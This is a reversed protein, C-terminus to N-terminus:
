QSFIQKIKLSAAYFEKRAIDKHKVSLANVAEKASVNNKIIYDVLMAEASLVTESEAKHETESKTELNIVLTYEGKEASPNSNLEDLVQVASGRYIREHMKSLDNCLCLEADPIEQALLEMTKKIRKPSEFFIATNIGSKKM